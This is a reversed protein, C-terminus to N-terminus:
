ASPIFPRRSHQFGAHRIFYNTTEQLMSRLPWSVSSLCLISAGSRLFMDSCVRDTMAMRDHETRKKPYNQRDSTSLPLSTSDRAFEDPSYRLFVSLAAIADFFTERARASSPVERVATSVPPCLLRLSGRGQIGSVSIQGKM